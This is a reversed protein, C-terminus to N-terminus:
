AVVVGGAAMAELAVNAGGALQPALVFDALGLIAAADHRPGLFHVRSGEPALGEAAFEMQARAPGDGILLLRSSMEIYRLFEFSWLAGFLDDRKSMRGAAILLPTAPPIGLERDLAERNPLPASVEVAPPVISTVDPSVGQRVIADAAFKHPVLVRMTRDILWLDLRGLLDH